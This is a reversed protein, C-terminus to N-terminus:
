PGAFRRALERADHVVRPLSKLLLIVVFGLTALVVASGACLSLTSLVAVRPERTAFLNMFASPLLRGAEGYRRQRVLFEIKSVVADYSTDDLRLAADYARLARDTKGAAEALRGEHVAARAFDSLRKVGVTRAAKEVESLEVNATRTDDETLANLFA